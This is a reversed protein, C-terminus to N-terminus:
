FWGCLMKMKKNHCLYGFDVGGRWTVNKLRNEVEKYDHSAKAEEISAFPIISFALAAALALRKKMYFHM